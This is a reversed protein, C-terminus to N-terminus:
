DAASVAIVKSVTQVEGCSAFPFLLPCDNLQTLCVQLLQTTRQRYRRSPVAKFQWGQSPGSVITESGYFILLNNSLLRASLPTKTPTRQRGDTGFGDSSGQCYYSFSDGVASPGAAGLRRCGARGTVVAVALGVVPDVAGVRVSGAEIRCGVLGVAFVAAVSVAPVSGASWGAAPAASVGEEVFSVSGSHVPVSCSVAVVWGVVDALVAVSDVSAEVVVVAGVVGGAVVAPGRAPVVESSSNAAVVVPAASHQCEIRSPSVVTRVAGVADVVTLVRAVVAAEFGAGASGAFGVSWEVAFSSEDVPGVVGVSVGFRAVTM